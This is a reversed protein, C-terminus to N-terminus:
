LTQPLSPLSPFSRFLALLQQRPVQRGRRTWWIGAGSVYQSDEIEQLAKIERLAQNPIGDELRRLAVKKLAVIEGTQATFLASVALFVKPLSPCSSFVCPVLYWCLDAGLDPIDLGGALPRAGAICGSSAPDGGCFPGPCADLSVVVVVVVGLGAPRLM